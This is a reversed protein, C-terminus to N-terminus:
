GTAAEHQIQKFQNATATALAQAASLPRVMVALEDILGHEDLHLFDCGEVAIDGIRAAFVLAHDRGGEDGFERLYRLDEFVRLVGRLTAATIAKGPYPKFQIVRSLTLSVPRGYSPRGHISRWADPSPARDRFLEM